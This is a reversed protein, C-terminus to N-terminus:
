GVGFGSLSARRWLGSQRTIVSSTCVLSAVAEPYGTEMVVGWVENTDKLKVGISDPRTSFVMDRLGSYAEAVKYEAASAGPSFLGAIFSLFSAMLFIRKM